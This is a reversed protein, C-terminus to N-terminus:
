VQDLKLLVEAHRNYQSMGSIRIDAEYLVFPPTSTSIREYTSNPNISWSSTTPCQNNDCCNWVNLASDRCNYHRNETYYFSAPLTISGSLKTTKVKLSIGSGTTQYDIKATIIVGEDYEKPLSISSKPTIYDGLDISAEVSHATEGTQTRTYQTIASEPLVEEYTYTEGTKPDEINIIAIARIGNEDAAYVTCNYWGMVMTASMMLGLMKRLVKKM